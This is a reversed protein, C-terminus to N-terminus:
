SSSSCVQDLDLEGAAIEGPQGIGFGTAQAGRETLNENVRVSWM